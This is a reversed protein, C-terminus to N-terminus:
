YARWDIEAEDVAEFLDGEAQMAALHRRVDEPSGDRPFRRDAKAGAVLQGVLGERDVQVRLWAGFTEGHHNFARGNAAGHATSQSEIM